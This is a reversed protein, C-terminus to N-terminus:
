CKNYYYLLGKLVLDDSVSHKINLVNAFLNSDGGTIYLPFSGKESHCQYMSSIYATLSTICGNTVADTTTHGLQHLVDTQDENLYIGDTASQLVSKQLALGPIIHGGLHQGSHDVIDVTLASGADVLVFGHQIDTWIALMALWRDVGLQEVSQYGNKLGRQTTCSKALSIKTSSQKTSQEVITAIELESKVSSILVEDINLHNELISQKLELLGGRYIKSLKNHESLCWKIFTNGQDILLIM